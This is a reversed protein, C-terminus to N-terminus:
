KSVEERRYRSCYIKYHGGRTHQASEVEVYNNCDFATGTEGCISQHECKACDFYYNVGLCRRVARTECNLHITDGDATKIKLSYKYM